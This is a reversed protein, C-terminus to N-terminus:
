TGALAEHEVAPGAEEWGNPGYLFRHSYGNSCRVNVERPAGTPTSELLRLTGTRWNSAQRVDGLDAVAGIALALPALWTWLPWGALSVVLVAAVVWSASYALRFRERASAARLTAPADLVHHLAGLLAWALKERRTEDLRHTAM